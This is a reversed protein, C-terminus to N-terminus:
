SLVYQAVAAAASSNRTHRLLLLLLQRVDQAPDSLKITFNEQACSCISIPIVTRGIDSYDTDTKCGIKVCHM